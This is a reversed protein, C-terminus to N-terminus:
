FQCLDPPVHKSVWDFPISHRISLGSVASLRASPVFLISVLRWGRTVLSAGTPGVCSAPDFGGDDYEIDLADLQRFLPQYARVTPHPHLLGLTVNRDITEAQLQVDHQHVCGVNFILNAYSPQEPAQRHHSVSASGTQYHHSVCGKGQQVSRGIDETNM